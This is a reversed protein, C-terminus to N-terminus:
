VNENIKGEGKTHTVTVGFGMRLFRTESTVEEKKGHNRFV